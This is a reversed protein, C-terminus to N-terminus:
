PATWWHSLEEGNDYALGAIRSLSDATAASFIKSDMLPREHPLGSLGRFSQVAGGLRLVSWQHTLEHENILGFLRFSIKMSFSFIVKKKTTVHM